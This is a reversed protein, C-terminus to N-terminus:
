KKKNRVEEYEDCYSLYRYPKLKGDRIELLGRNGLCAINSDYEESSIMELNAKQEMCEHLTELLIVHRSISDGNNKIKALESIMIEIANKESHYNKQFIYTYLKNFKDIMLQPNIYMGYFLTKKDLLRELIYAYNTIIANSSEPNNLVVCIENKFQGVEKHKDNSYRIADVENLAEDLNTMDIIDKKKSLGIHAYMGNQGIGKFYDFDNVEYPYRRKLREKLDYYDKDRFINHDVFQTKLGHLVEHAVVKRRQEVSEINEELRERDILVSGYTYDYHSESFMYQVQYNVEAINRLLRNVLFEELSYLGDEKRFIYERNMDGSVPIYTIEDKYYNYINEIVQCIFEKFPMEIDKELQEIDEKGLYKYWEDIIDRIKEKNM